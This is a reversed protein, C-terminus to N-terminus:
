NKIATNNAYTESSKSPEFSNKFFSSTNTLNIEKVAPNTSKNGNELASRAARKELAKRRNEEIRKRQEETLQNM